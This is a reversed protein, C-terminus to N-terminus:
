DSGELAPLHGNQCSRAGDAFTGRAFASQKWEEYTTDLPFNAALTSGDSARWPLIPNYVQHCQGCLESSSNFSSKATPHFPSSSDDYPGFKIGTADVFIQANGMYPANPDQAPVYSRHCVDCTVGENDVADFAGGDAPLTHGRWYAQPAHCRLCWQGIDAVDQNAVSLAARFLPDRVSNAMMTSAWTDVPAYPVPEPSDPDPSANENNHCNKCYLGARQIDAGGDLAGPQSGQGPPINQASTLAPWLVSLVLLRWKM